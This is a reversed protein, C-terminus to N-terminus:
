GSSAKGHARGLTEEEWALEGPPEGVASATAEASGQSQSAQVGGDLPLRHPARPM